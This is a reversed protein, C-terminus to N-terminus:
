GRSEGSNLVKEPKGKEFASTFTSDSNFVYNFVGEVIGVKACYEKMKKEAETAALSGAVNKLANDGELQLAPNVYMWTGQLNEFTVAKGGTVSTVREKRCIFKLYRELVTGEHKRSDVFPRMRGDVYM